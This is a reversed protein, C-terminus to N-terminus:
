PLARMLYNTIGNVLVSFVGFSGTTSSKRGWHTMEILLAM